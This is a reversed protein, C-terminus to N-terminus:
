RGARVIVLGRAKGSTADRTAIARRLTALDVWVPPYKYKAVDLILVRDSIEDYAALVSWHGGGVQGLEARLYNALVFRGDDGLAQHLLERLAAESLSDGAVSHAQVGHLTLAQVMEDRTMGQALVTQPSILRTVEASFFNRQTFFPYPAYAPDVPRSLPLANLVTVASAVACYTQTEQTAFVPSLQWFDAGASMRARLVKGNASDWDYLVPLDHACAPSVLGLMAWLLLM